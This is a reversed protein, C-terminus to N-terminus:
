ESKNFNLSSLISSILSSVLGVVLFANPVYMLAFYSHMKAGATGEIFTVKQLEVTAGLSAGAATALLGFMVKDGILQFLHFMNHDILQKKAILYYGVFPILLITYCIGTIMVGFVFGYTDFVKYNIVDNLYSVENNYVVFSSILLSALTVVTAIVVILPIKNSSSLSSSPNEDFDYEVM